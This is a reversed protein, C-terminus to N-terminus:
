MSLSLVCLQRQKWHVKRVKSINQPPGVLKPSRSGAITSRFVLYWIFSASHHVLLVAM